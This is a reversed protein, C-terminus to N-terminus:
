RRSPRSMAPVRGGVSRLTAATRDDDTMRRGDYFLAMDGDVGVRHFFANSGSGVSGVCVRRVGLWVRYLDIPPLILAAFNSASSSLFLFRGTSCVGVGVRSFWMTWEITGIGMLGHRGASCFRFSLVFDLPSVLDGLTWRRFCLWCLSFVLVLWRFVSVELGRFLRFGM